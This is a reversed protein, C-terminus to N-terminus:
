FDSKWRKACHRALKRFKRVMLRSRRRDEELKAAFAEGHLHLNMNQWLTWPRCPLSGWLDTGPKEEVLEVLSKTVGDSEINLNTETRRVIHVGVEEAMRGMMSDDSACFEIMTGHGPLGQHHPEYQAIEAPEVQQDDEQNIYDAINQYVQREENKVEQGKEAYFDHIDKVLKRSAEDGRILDTTFDSHAGRTANKRKKEWLEKRHEKAEKRKLHQRGAMSQLQEDEGISGSPRVVKSSDDKPADYTSCVCAPIRELCFGCFQKEEAIATMAPQFLGAGADSRTVPM